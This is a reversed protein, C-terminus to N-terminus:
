RIKSGRIEVRKERNEIGQERNEGGPVIMPHTLRVCFRGGGHSKDGEAAGFVEDIGLDHHAKEVAGARAQGGAGLLGLDEDDVGAAEDISGLLFGSRFLM